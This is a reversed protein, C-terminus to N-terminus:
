SQMALRVRAWAAPFLLVIPLWAGLFAALIQNSSAFAQIATTVLFVFGVALMVAGAIWFLHRDVRRLVIPLGFLVLTLDLLPQVMRTHAVVHLDRNVNPQTRLRKVVNWTSEYQSWTTGGQLLFFPVSSPVFCQNQGLWDHDLRTMVLPKNDRMLSSHTDISQPNAVQDLLYGAPHQDNSALYYATEAQLQKGISGADGSIRFAPKRIRQNLVEVNQGSIFIGTVHDRTPTLMRFNEGSLDQPQKGLIDQHHPIITERIVTSVGILILMAFMPARLIRGKSIGAAMLATLENTRKLWGVLFLLAMLAFFPCLRTFLSLAYPTYFSVILKTVSGKAKGADILDDLNTFLHVIIMLGILCIFCSCFVRLFVFLIYRDIRTM